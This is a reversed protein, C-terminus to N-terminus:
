PNSRHSPIRYAPYQCLVSSSTARFHFFFHISSGTLQFCAVELHCLVCLLPISFFWESFWTDLLLNLQELLSIMSLFCNYNSNGYSWTYCLGSHTHTCAQSTAETTDSQAVGYVTAWWTWRDMPTELCSYQLPNVSEETSSRGLGPTSVTDRIDGANGPLKKVVQVLQSAWLGSYNGLNWKIDM